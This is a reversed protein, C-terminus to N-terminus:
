RDSARLIKVLFGRPVRLSRVSSFQLSSSLPLSMKSASRLFKRRQPFHLTARSFEADAPSNETCGGRTNTDQERPGLSTGRTASFYISHTNRRKCREGQFNRLHRFPAHFHHALNCFFRCPEITGLSAKTSVILFKKQLQQLFKRTSTSQDELDVVQFKCNLINNCRNKESDCNEAERSAGQCELFCKGTPMLTRLAPIGTGTIERKGYM